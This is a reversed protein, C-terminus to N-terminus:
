ISCLGLASTVKVRPARSEGHHGTLAESGAANRGVRGELQLLNM